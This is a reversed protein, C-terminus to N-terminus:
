SLMIQHEKENQKKIKYKKDGDLYIASAGYDMELTANPVMPPPVWEVGTSKTMNLALRFIVSGVTM